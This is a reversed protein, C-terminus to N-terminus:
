RKSAAGGASSREQSTDRHSGLWARTCDHRVPVRRRLPTASSRPGTPSMQGPQEHVGRIWGMQPQGGPLSAYRIGLDPFHGCEAVRYAGCSNVVKFQQAVITGDKKVGTKVETWLPQGHCNASFIEERSAVIQVPRGAKMSLLCACDEHAFLDIKGGFAGGVYAKHVRVTSQPLRLTRALKARKIFPGQSSTWVNLKGSPEYSALTCQPELDGHTRLHSEFRGETM